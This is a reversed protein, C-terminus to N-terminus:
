SFLQISARTSSFTQDPLEQYWDKPNMWEEDPWMCSFCYGLGIPINGMIDHASQGTFAELIGPLSLHRISDVNLYELPNEVRNYFLEEEDTIAIGLGCPHKFKPSGLCLHRRPISLGYQKFVDEFQMLTEYILSMTPESQSGRILSDDVLAIDTIGDAIMQEIVGSRIGMKRKAVAKHEGNQAMFSRTDIIKELLEYKRAGLGYAFGDAYVNGGNPISVVGIQSHHLEKLIDEEEALMEGAAFRLMNNDKEVDRSDRSEGKQLYIHELLCMAEDLPEFMQQMSVEGEPSIHVLQGAKVQEVQMNRDKLSGYELPYTESSLTVMGQDNRGIWLDRNKRPDCFGYIGEPTLMTVSYSGNFHKAANRIKEPWTEGPVELILETMLASDSTGPPNYKLMERFSPDVNGNHSLAAQWMRDISQVQFPQANAASTESQTTYRDHGIAMTTKFSVFPVKDPTGLGKQTLIGEPTIGAIGSSDRGRNIQDLLASYTYDFADGNPDFVAMVACDDQPAELIENSDFYAPSRCETM